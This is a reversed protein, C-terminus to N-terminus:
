IISSFIYLRRKETSIKPTKKRVQDVLPKVDYYPNSGKKVIDAKYYHMRQVNGEGM